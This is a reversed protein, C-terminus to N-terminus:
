QLGGIISDNSYEEGPLLSSGPDRVEYAYAIQDDLVGVHYQVPPVAGTLLDFPRGISYVLVDQVIPPSWSLEVDAEHGAGGKSATLDVQAQVIGATLSACLIVSLLKFPSPTLPIRRHITGEAHGFQRAMSLFREPLVRIFPNM